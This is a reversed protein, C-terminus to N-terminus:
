ILLVRALGRTDDDDDDDDIDDDDCMMLDAPGYLAFLLDAGGAVFYLLPTL